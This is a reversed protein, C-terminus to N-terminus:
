QLEKENLQVGTGWEEFLFLEEIVQGTVHNEKSLNSGSLNGGDSLSTVGNVEKRFRLRLKFEEKRMKSFQRPTPGKWDGKNYNYYRYTRRAGVKSESHLKVKNGETLYKGIIYWQKKIEIDNKKTNKKVKQFAEAVKLLNKMNTFNLNVCLLM